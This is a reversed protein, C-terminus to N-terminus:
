NGIVTFAASRTAEKRSRVDTVTVTLDYNDEPLAALSIAYWYATDPSDGSGILRSSVSHREEPFLFSTLSKLWSEEHRLQHGSLETTVTFRSRGPTDETLGYLEFYLM